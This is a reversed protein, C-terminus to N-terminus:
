LAPGKLHALKKKREDRTVPEGLERIACMNYGPAHRVNILQRRSATEMSISDLFDTSKQMHTQIVVETEIVAM